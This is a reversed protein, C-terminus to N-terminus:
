QSVVAQGIYKWMIFDFAQGYGISFIVSYEGAMVSMSGTSEGDTGLNFSIIQNHDNISRMQINGRSQSNPSDPMIGGNKTVEIDFTVLDLDKSLQVNNSLVYDEFIPYEQYSLGNLFRLIFTYEGTPRVFEFYNNEYENDGPTRNYIDQDIVYLQVSEFVGDDVLQQLTSEGDNVSLSIRVTRMELNVDHRANTSSLEIDKEVFFELYNGYLSSGSYRMAEYNGALLRTEYHPQSQGDLNAFHVAALNNYYDSWKVTLYQGATFDDLPAGNVSIDGHMTVIEMDLDQQMDGSVEFDEIWTIHHETSPYSYTVFWEDDIFSGEYYIDYFGPGVDLDYTVAGEFGLEALVFKESSSAERMYVIGRDLFLHDPMTSGNVTIEGQFQRQQVDLILTPDDELLEVHQDSKWLYSNGSIGPGAFAMRYEGQLVERSFNVLGSTGLQYFPFRNGTIENIFWVEGREQISSAPPAGNIKISGSATVTELDFTFQEGGEITKNKLLTERQYSNEDEGLYGEFIIDVEGPFMKFSFSNLGSGTKGVLIEQNNIGQIKVKIDGQFQPSLTPFPQGNKKLSVTFSVVPFQLTITRDANINENQLVTTRQGHRNQALIHYIGNIIEVPPLNDGNSFNNQVIPQSGSQVDRIYIRSLGSSDIYSAGDMEARFTIDSTPFDLLYDYGDTIVTGETDPDPDIDPDPEADYDPELDEDGDEDGDPVIIDPVCHYLANCKLSEDIVQCDAHAECAATCVGADTAEDHCITNFPCQLDETCGPEGYPYCRSFHNCFTGDYDDCDEDRVCGVNCRGEGDFVETHCVTPYPCDALKDCDDGSNIISCRNEGNCWSNEQEQCDLEDYCYTKCVGDLYQNHCVKGEICDTDEDCTDSVETVCRGDSNCFYDGMVTCIAHNGFCPPNCRGDNDVEVHCVQGIECEIDDSCGDSQGKPACLGANNCFYVEQWSDCWTTDTCYERCRGDEVETHCYTGVACDSDDSCEPYEFPETDVDVIPDDNDFEQVTEQDGDENQPNTDRDPTIIVYDRDMDGGYPDDGLPICDGTGNEVWGQPCTDNQFICGTAFLALFLLLIFFRPLKSNM